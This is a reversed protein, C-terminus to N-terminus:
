FHMGARTAATVFSQGNTLRNFRVDLGLSLGARARWELGGGVDLGWDVGGQGSPVGRSQLESAAALQGGILAGGFPASSDPDTHQNTIAVSLLLGAAAYPRLRLRDLGTAVYKLGFPVVRLVQLRSRTDYEVAYPAPARGTLAAELNAAGGGPRTNALVALNAVQAVNSTVRLSTESRGLGASFEYHVRGGPAEFLPLDISGGLYPGSSSGFPGSHLGASLSATAGIKGLRPLLEQPLGGGPAPQSADTPTTLDPTPTPSSVLGSEPEGRFPATETTNTLQGILTELRVVRAELEAIRADRDDAPQAVAGTVVGALLVASAAAVHFTRM